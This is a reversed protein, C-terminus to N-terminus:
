LNFVLTAIAAGVVGASLKGLGAGGDGGDVEEKDEYTFEAEKFDAFCAEGLVVDNWTLNDAVNEACEEDSKVTTKAGNAADGFLNLTWTDLKGTQGSQGDVVHLTWDGALDTGFEGWHRVTMFRWNTMDDTADNTAPVLLSEIGSPGTLTIELDGRRQIDITLYVNVHEVSRIKAAEEGTVTIVSTAGNEDADPITVDGGQTKTVVAQVVNTHEADYAAAMTTAALADVKGFGYWYSHSLAAGNTVWDASETDADIKKSSRVLVDQVDRWDLDPNAEM